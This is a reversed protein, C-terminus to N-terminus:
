EMSLDDGEGGGTECARSCTSLLGSGPKWRFCRGGTPKASPAGGAHTNAWSPWFAGSAFAVAGSALLAEPRRRCVRVYMCVYMCVYMRVYMCIHVCVYMCVYMHICLICIYVYTYMCVYTYLCVYMCVYMRIYVYVYMLIHVYVYMCLYVYVYMCMCVFTYVYM